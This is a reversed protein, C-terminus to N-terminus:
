LKEYIFDLLMDCLDIRVSHIGVSPIWRHKRNMEELLPDLEKKSHDREQEIKKIVDEISIM